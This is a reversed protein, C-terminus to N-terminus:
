LNQVPTASTVYVSMRCAFVATDIPADDVPIAMYNGPTWRCSSSSADDFHAILDADEDFYGNDSGATSLQTVAPGYLSVAQDINCLIREHTWQPGAIAIFGDTAVPACRVEGRLKFDAKGFCSEAEMLGLALLDNGSVAHTRDPCAPVFPAIVSQAAGNTARVWGFPACCGPFAADAIQWYVDDNPQTPGGVIMVRQAEGLPRLVRAGAHSASEFARDAPQNPDAVQRLQGATVVAM